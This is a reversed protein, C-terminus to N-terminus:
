AVFRTSELKPERAFVAGVALMVAATAQAERWLRAPRPLELLSRLDPEALRELQTSPFFVCTGGEWGGDRM